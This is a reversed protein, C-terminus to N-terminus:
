TSSTPEAKPRLSERYQRGLQMAEDYAPDNAFSGLIEEWWPTEASNSTYITEGEVELSIPVSNGGNEVRSIINLCVSKFDLVWDSPNQIGSIALLYLDALHKLKGLLETENKFVNFKETLLEGASKFVDFTNVITEHNEKVSTNSLISIIYRHLKNLLEYNRNSESVLSEVRSATGVPLSFNNGSDLLNAKDILEDAKSFLLDSKKEINLETSKSIKEMDHVLAMIQSHYDSEYAEHSDTVSLANLDSVLNSLHSERSEDSTKKLSELSELLEASVTSVGYRYRWKTVGLLSNLFQAINKLM